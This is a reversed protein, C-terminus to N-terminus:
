KAGWNSYPSQNPNVGGGNINPKYETGPNFNPTGSEPQVGPRYNKDTTVSDHKGYQGYQEDLWKRKNEERQEASGSLGLYFNKSDINITGFPTDISMSPTTIDVGKVVTNVTGSLAGVPGGYQAGEIPGVNWFFLNIGGYIAKSIDGYAPSNPNSYESYAYDLFSLGDATYGLVKGFAKNEKIFAKVKDLKKFIKLGSKSADIMKAGVSSKSLASTVYGLPALVDWGKNSLDGLIAYIKGQMNIPLKEVYYAFKPNNVLKTVYKQPLSDWNERATFLGLVVDQLGEPCKDLGWIIYEFLKDDNEIRKIAEAPNKKYLDNIFKIQEDRRKKDLDETEKDGYLKTFWSKDMGKPFSYTGNSNVTLKGLVTVGQMAIKFNTLSGSFLGQTESVFNQLLRLDQKLKEIDQDLSAVYSNLKGQIDFLQNALSLMATVPNTMGLIGFAQSNLADATAKITNRYTESERIKQELKAEDLIDTSAAQIAQNASIYRQLDQQMEEIAQGCRTITPIILEGFLGKGANYAAGSLTKGDIAQMLKNSGSKLDNIVELGGTLNAQCNSIFQSSESKSFIVGM